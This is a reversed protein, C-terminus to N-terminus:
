NRYRCWEQYKNASPTSILLSQPTSRLCFMCTDKHEPAVESLFGRVVLPVHANASLLSTLEYPSWISRIAVNELVHIPWDDDPVSPDVPKFVDRELMIGNSNGQPAPDSVGAVADSSIHPQDPQPKDANLLRGLSVLSSTESTDTQPSAVRTPARKRTERAPTVGRKVNGRSECSDAM